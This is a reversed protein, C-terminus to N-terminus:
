KPGVLVLSSWYFPHTWKEQKRIQKKAGHLANAYDRLSADKGGRTLYTAFYSVMTAGAEDDVIWNSAIVRRAGAVLFGRSLAWVGEGQQQPGFNTECASLIALECADLKLDYIEAMSLFGDDSPDGKHGPAVALSGFFNGHSQDAMGHCALHIIERGPAHQRIAAETAAAGTVRMARMGAKGFTQEFWTSEWGTYPLPSLGARFRDAVRVNGPKRSEAVAAANVPPYTPDGLTFIPTDLSRTTAPREALNILVSASPAYVIPPGVDLLYRSSETGAGSVVLAEFPLLSLAGDPLVTLLQVEGSILAAREKEPVLLQWLTALTKTAEFKGPRSLSALTGGDSLLVKALKHLLLPGPEVGLQEAVADDVELKSAQVSDRRIALVYSYKWEGIFYTLVLEDPRLREQLSELTALKTEDTILKRYIPSAARADSLHRYLEDQSQRLDGAAQQHRQLAGPQALDADALANLQKERAAIQRRLDQERETLSRRELESLGANLDINRMRLEDLFSRAKTREMTRFAEAANGLECQWATMLEYETSFMAFSAAREVEIGAANGRDTERYDLAQALERVALDRQNLNWHAQARFLNLCALSAAPPPYLEFLKELRDLIPLAAAYQERGLKLGSLHILVPPIRSHMPGLAKELGALSDNLMPEAEDFREQLVLLMALCMKQEISDPHGPGLQAEHVAISRRWLQDAASYNGLRAEIMALRHVAIMTLVHDKGLTQEWSNLAAEIFPKGEDFRGEGLYLMGLNSSLEATMTHRWGTLAVQMGLARRFMPEALDPRGRLNYMVAWGSLLHPYSNIPQRVRQHEREFVAAAQRFHLEAKDFQELDRYMFALQKECNAANLPHKPDRQRNWKVAEEIYSIAEEPKGNRSLCYGAGRLAESVHIVLLLRETENAPRFERNAELVQKHLALAEDYKVQLTQAAAQNMLAFFQLRAPFRQQVFATVQEASAAALDTHGANFYNSSADSLRAFREWDAQTPEQGHSTKLNAVGAILSAVLAILGWRRCFPTATSKM